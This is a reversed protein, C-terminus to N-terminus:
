NSNISLAWILSRIIYIGFFLIIMLLFLLSFEGWGLFLDMDAVFDVNVKIIIYNLLFALTSSLIISIFFWLIEISLRKSRMLKSRDAAGSVLAQQSKMVSRYSKRYLDRESRRQVQKFLKDVSNM